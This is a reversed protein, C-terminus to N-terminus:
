NLEMGSKKVEDILLGGNNYEQLTFTHIDLDPFKVAVKSILDMNSLNNETFNESVIAIDIDSENTLSNNVVSGFLIFRNIKLPLTKCLAIFQKAQTIATEQTLM